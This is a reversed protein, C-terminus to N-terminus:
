KELLLVALFKKADGSEANGTEILAVAVAQAGDNRWVSMQYDDGKLPSKTDLAWDNRAFHASYFENIKTWDTEAPVFLIEEDTQKYGDPLNQAAATLRNLLANKYDGGFTSKYAGPPQPIEEIKVVNETKCGMASFLLFVPLFMLLKRAYRKM